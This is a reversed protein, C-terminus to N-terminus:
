DRLARSAATKPLQRLSTHPRRPSVKAAVNLSTDAECIFTMRTSVIPEPGPMMCPGMTRSGSLTPGLASIIAKTIQDQVAFIDKSDREYSDSWLTLGDAASTLQTTVKLRGEARRVTGELVASVGLRKGIERVDLDRNARMAFASTRSAVRLGPVKTLQSTLEDAM